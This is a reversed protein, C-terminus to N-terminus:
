KWTRKIENLLSKITKCSISTAYLSNQNVKSNYTRTRNIEGKATRHTTTTTTLAGTELNMVSYYTKVQEMSSVAISSYDHLIVKVLKLLNHDKTPIFYFGTEGLRYFGYYVSITDEIQEIGFSDFDGIPLKLYDSTPHSGPYFVVVVREDCEEDAFNDSDELSSSKCIIMCDINGDKDVDAKLQNAGGPGDVHYYNSPIPCILSDQTEETEFSVDEDQDTTADQQNISEAADDYKVVETMLTTDTSLLEGELNKNPSSNLCGVLISILLSYFCINNM